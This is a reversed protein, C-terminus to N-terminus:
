ENRRRYYPYPYPYPMYDPMYDPMYYPMYYLYPETSNAYLQQLTGGSTAFHESVVNPAFVYVLIIIFAILFIMEQLKM